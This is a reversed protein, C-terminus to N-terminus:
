AYYGRGYPYYNRLFLDRIGDQKIKSKKVDAALKAKYKETGANLKATKYDYKMASDKLTSEKELLTMQLEHRNAEKDEALDMMDNELDMRHNMYMNQLIKDYLAMGMGFAQMGLQIQDRTISWEAANAEAGMKKLGYM